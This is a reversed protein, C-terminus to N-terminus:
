PFIHSLMITLPKYFSVQNYLNQITFLNGQVTSIFNSTPQIYVILTSTKQVSFYQVYFWSLM